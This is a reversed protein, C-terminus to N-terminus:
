LAARWLNRGDGRGTCNPFGEVADGARSLNGGEWAQKLAELAVPFEHAISLPSGRRNFMRKTPVHILARWGNYKPEYFWGGDKAVAKELPGGNCPRPPYTPPHLQEKVSSELLKKTQEEITTNM